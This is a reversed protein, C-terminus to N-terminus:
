RSMVSLGGVLSYLLILLFAKSDVYDKLRSLETDELFGWRM